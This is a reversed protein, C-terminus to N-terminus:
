HTIGRVRRPSPVKPKLHPHMRPTQSTVPSIKEAPKMAETPEVKAAQGNAVAKPHELGLWRRVNEVVQALRQVPSLRTTRQLHDERGAVVSRMPRVTRFDNRVAVAPSAPTEPKRTFGLQALDDRLAQLEIAAMRQHSDTVRRGLMEADNTFVQVRERGRSISVYFQERNVAAFSKSSAVLLVEDVTKGQSSHSTVAYGHTFTNFGAPLVRGDALAIRGNQITKVQVREGNIFEKGHNAQLLLWDGAAVKLESSKGVDFSAAASTPIFDIELGDPRRVRLGTELTAVVEVTEGREFKRTRRVFRLRQGPEFQRANKKQAVTWSLSDFVCHTSEDQSIVGDAKLSERVKETVAEIEAWTPSVLLASRGQKTASVYADAARQYLTQTRGGHEDNPVETVAGLEVLKAFAKDTQKAAALEVIERFAAPKQRRITTLESFRYSADWLM